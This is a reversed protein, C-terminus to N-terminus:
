RDTFGMVRRLIESQLMNKYYDIITLGTENMINHDGVFVQTNRKFVHWFCLFPSVGRISTRWNKFVIVFGPCLYYYHYYYYVVLNIKNQYFFYNRLMLKPMMILNGQLLFVQKVLFNNICRASDPSKWIIRSCSFIRIYQKM